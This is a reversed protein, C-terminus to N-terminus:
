RNLECFIGHDRMIPLVKTLDITAGSRIEHSAFWGRNTELAFQIDKSVSKVSNQNNPYMTHIERIVGKADIYAIDLPIWTNKMWFSRPAPNDFIFLMGGDEALTERKMLGRTQSAPTMALEVQLPVSAEGVAIAVKDGPEWTATPESKGCAVLIGCVALLLTCFSSGKLMHIRQSM